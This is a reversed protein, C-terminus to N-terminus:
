LGVKFYAELKPHSLSVLSYNLSGLGIDVYKTTYEQNYNM